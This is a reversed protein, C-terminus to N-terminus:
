IKGYVVERIEYNQKLIEDKLDGKNMITVAHFASYCTNMKDM